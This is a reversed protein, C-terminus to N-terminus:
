EKQNCQYDCGKVNCELRQRVNFGTKPESDTNTSDITNNQDEYLHEAMLHDSIDAKRNTKFGCDKFNCLYKYQVEKHAKKLHILLKLKSVSKFNQTCEYCEFGSKNHQTEETTNSKSKNLDESYISHTLM